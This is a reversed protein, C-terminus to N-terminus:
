PVVSRVPSRVLEHERFWQCTTCRTQRARTHELTEAAHALRARDTEDGDVLVSNRRLEWAFGDRFGLAGRRRLKGAAGIEARNRKDCDIGFVRAIVVVSNPGSGIGILGVLATM